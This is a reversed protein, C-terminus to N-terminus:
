VEYGKELKFYEETTKEFEVAENIWEEATKDGLKAKIPSYCEVPVGSYV